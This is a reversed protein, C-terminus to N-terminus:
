RWGDIRAAFAALKMGANEVSRDKALRDVDCEALTYQAFIPKLIAIQNVLRHRHRKVRQADYIYGYQKTNRCVTVRRPWRHEPVVAKAGIRKCVGGLKFPASFGAKEGDANIGDCM